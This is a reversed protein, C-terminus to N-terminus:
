RVDAKCVKWEKLSAIDEVIRLGCPSYVACDKSLEERLNDENGNPALRAKLKFTKDDNTKVKYLTHNNLM